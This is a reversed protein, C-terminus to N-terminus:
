LAIEEAPVADPQPRDLIVHLAHPLAEERSLPRHVLLLCSSPLGGHDGTPRGLQRM